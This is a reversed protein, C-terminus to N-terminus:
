RSAEQGEGGTGSMPPAVEEVESLLAAGPAPAGSPQDSPDTKNSKEHDGGHQVNGVIAQGGDNVTVHQQVKVTDNGTARYRKLAELQVAFTRALKNLANATSDHQALNDVHNLRRAADRPVARRIADRSRGAAPGGIRGRRDRRCAWAREVLRPRGRPGRHADCM